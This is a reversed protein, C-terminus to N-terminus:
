DRDEYDTQDSPPLGMWAVKAPRKGMTTLNGSVDLELASQGYRTSRFGQGYQGQYKASSKGTNKSDYLQDHHAYYHAALYAEIRENLTATLVSSSDKTVLWDVVATATAIFPAVDTSGDYNDGLINQVVTSTTRAAM